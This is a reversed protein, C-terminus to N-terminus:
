IHFPPTPGQDHNAPNDRKRMLISAVREVEMTPLPPRLWAIHRPMLHSYPSHQAPLPKGFLLMYGLQMIISCVNIHVVNSLDLTTIILDHFRTEGVGAGCLVCNAWLLHGGGDSTKKESTSATPMDGRKTGGNSFVRFPALTHASIISSTRGWRVQWIGSVTQRDGKGHKRAIPHQLSQRKRKRRKFM